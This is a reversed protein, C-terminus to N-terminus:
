YREYQVENCLQKEHLPASKSPPRFDGGADNKRGM